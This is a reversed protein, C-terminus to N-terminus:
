TDRSTHVSRVLDSDPIVSPLHKKGGYGGYNTFKQAREEYVPKLSGAAPNRAFLSATFRLNM